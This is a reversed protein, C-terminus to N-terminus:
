IQTKKRFANPSLGTHKKTYQCFFSANPFEMQQAIDHIPLITDRLLHKLEAITVEAIWQSASKGSREKCIESLYKPTIELQNAFWQVERQHPYQQLLNMFEHFTYDSQNISMRLLDQPKIVSLKDLYNLLEMVAGKAMLKMIQLRYETASAEMNLILLNFYAEFFAKSPENLHFVPHERIYEQKVYWNPEMRMHEFMIQEFIKADMTIQKFEYDDSVEYPGVKFDIAPIRVYLDDKEIRVMKGRVFVEIWGKTCLIVTMGKETRTNRCLRFGDMDTTLFVFQNALTMTLLLILNTLLLSSEPAFNTFFFSNYLNKYM